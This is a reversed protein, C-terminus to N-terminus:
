TFHLSLHKINDKYKKHPKDPVLDYLTLDELSDPLNYLPFSRFKNTVKHTRIILKKLIKLDRFKSRETQKPDMTLELSM